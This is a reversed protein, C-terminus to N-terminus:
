ASQVPAQADFEVLRLYAHIADIHILLKTRPKRVIEIHKRGKRVTATSPKGEGHDVVAPLHGPPFAAKIQDLLQSSTFKRTVTDHSLGTLLAAQRVSIYLPEPQNSM